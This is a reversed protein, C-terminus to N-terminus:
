QHATKQKCVRLSGGVKSLVSHFATVPICPTEGEARSGPFSDSGGVEEKSLHPNFPVPEGKKWRLTFSMKAADLLDLDKKSYFHEWKM